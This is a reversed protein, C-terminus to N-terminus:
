TVYNNSSPPCWFLESPPANWGVLECNTTEPVIRTNIMAANLFPMANNPEFVFDLNMQFPSFCFQDLIDNVFECKSNRVRLVAINHELTFRNYREHAYIRSVLLLAPTGGTITIAGARVTIQSPSLRNGNTPDFCNSAVTLLHNRNFIM